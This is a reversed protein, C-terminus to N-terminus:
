GCALWIGYRVSDFVGFGKSFRLVRYWRNWKGTFILIMSMAASRDDANWESSSPFAVRIGSGLTSRCCRFEKTQKSKVALRSIQSIPSTDVHRFCLRCLTAATLIDVSVASSFCVCKERQV